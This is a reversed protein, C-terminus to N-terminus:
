LPGVLSFGLIALAEIQPIPASSIPAPGAFVQAQEARLWAVGGLQLWVMFADFLWGVRASAMVGPSFATASNTTTFGVGKTVLLGALADADLEFRLRPPGFAWHGGIGLEFREWSASGPSLQVGRPAFALLTLQGGYAQARPGIASRLEAGWGAVGDSAISGILGAGLEGVWRSEHASAALREPSAAPPLPKPVQDAAPFTPWPPSPGTLEAEWTVLVVAAILAWEACSEPGRIARQELLQGGEDFLRIELGDGAERLLVLRRVPGELVAPNLRRLEAQLDRNTPCERDGLFRLAGPLLALVITSLGVAMLIM